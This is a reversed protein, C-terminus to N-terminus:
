VGKGGWELGQALSKERHHPVNEQFLQGYDPIEVM